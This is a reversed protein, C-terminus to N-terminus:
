TGIETGAAVQGAPVLITSLHLYATSVGAGHDLVVVNGDGDLSGAFAVTGPAAARVPTGEPVGIDIGEHMGGWRRGFGSTIPGRRRARTKAFPTPPSLRFEAPAGASGAVSPPGRKRRGM